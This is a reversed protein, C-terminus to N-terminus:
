YSIILVSKTLILRRFTHQQLPTLAQYNITVKLLLAAYLRLYNSAYESMVPFNSYPKHNPM